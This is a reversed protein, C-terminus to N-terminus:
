KQHFRTRMSWGRVLWGAPDAVLQAELDDVREAARREDSWVDGDRRRVAEVWLDGGGAGDRDHCTPQQPGGCNGLKVAVDHIPLPAAWRGPQRRRREVGEEVSGGVM